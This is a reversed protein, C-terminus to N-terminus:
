PWQEKTLATHSAAYFQEPPLPCPCHETCTGLLYISLSSERTYNGPNTSYRGGLLVFLLFFINPKNM